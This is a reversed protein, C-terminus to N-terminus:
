SGSSVPIDIRRAINLESGPRLNQIGEVVVDEGRSIDGSVLVFDSNRQIIRVPVKISKDDATKWIFAGDSSWQIALPDVAAYTEGAFQMGVRFSMGPRLLDERNDLIARVLLTRSQRDVRSAIASIEGTFQRGPLSAPVAKVPQGVQIVSAFREPVWFDLLIESRDDITAVESTQTIYDGREVPVFGITGDIPAKISRRDYELQAERLVLQAKTLENRADTLQVQTGALSEVLTEYRSVKELATDVTLAAQDRAIKEAESDLVALVDGANVQQGPVMHVEQLVGDSFPVVIVSRRAEGDGIATVRDNISAEGVAAVVVLAASGRGGRKAGPRGKGSKGAQGQFEDTSRSVLGVLREPIGANAAIEGAGPFYRIWIASTVLAIILIIIGQKMWSM